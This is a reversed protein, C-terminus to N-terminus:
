LNVARLKLPLLIKRFFWKANFIQCVFCRSSFIINDGFIYNLKLIMVIIIRVDKPLRTPLCLQTDTFLRTKGIHPELSAILRRKERADDVPPRFHVAYM